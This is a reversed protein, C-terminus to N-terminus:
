LMQVNFSERDIICENYNIDIHRHYKVESFFGATFLALLLATLAVILLKAKEGIKLLSIGWIILLSPWLDFLDGLDADWIGFQRLLLLIGLSILFVGWFITSSKM